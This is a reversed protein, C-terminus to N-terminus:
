SLSSAPALLEHAPSPITARHFQTSTPHCPSVSICNGFLNWFFVQIVSLSSALNRKKYFILTKCMFLFCFISYYIILTTLFLITPWSLTLTFLFVPWLCSFCKISSIVTLCIPFFCYLPFVSNICPIYHNYLYWHSLQLISNFYVCLYFKCIIQIIQFVNSSWIINHIVFMEHFTCYKRYIYSILPQLHQSVNEPTFLM